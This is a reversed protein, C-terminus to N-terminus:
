STRGKTSASAEKDFGENHFGESHFGKGARALVVGAGAKM